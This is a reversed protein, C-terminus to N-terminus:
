SMRDPLAREFTEAIKSVELDLLGDVRLRTGGTRGLVAAPVGAKGAAELIVARSVTSVM